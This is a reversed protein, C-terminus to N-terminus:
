INRNLCLNKVQNLLELALKAHCGIALAKHDVSREVRAQLLDGLAPALAHERGKDAIGQFGERGRDGAEAAAAGCLGRECREGLRQAQQGDATGRGQRPATHVVQETRGVALHQGPGALLALIVAELEDV